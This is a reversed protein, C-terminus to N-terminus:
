NLLYTVLYLHFTNTTTKLYKKARNAFIITDSVMSLIFIIFFRSEYGEMKISKKKNKNKKAKVNQIFCVPM